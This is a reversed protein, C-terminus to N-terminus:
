LTAKRVSRIKWRGEIRALNVRVDVQMAIRTDGGEPSLTGIVYYRAAADDRTAGYQAGFSCLNHRFRGGSSTMNARPIQKLAERGVLSGGKSLGLFAGDETFLDVWGDEDGDDVLHQYLGMLNLIRAYDDADVPNLAM